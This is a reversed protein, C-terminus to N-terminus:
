LLLRISVGCMDSRMSVPATEVGCIIVGRSVSLYVLKAHKVPTWQFYICNVDSILGLSLHFGSKM